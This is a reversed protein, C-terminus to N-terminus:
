WRIDHESGHFVKIISSDTFVENLDNLSERLSITDVIYDKERTSIQMLCTFGQYSRFAHHELDVAIDKQSKLDEILENLLKNTDVLTYTTREEIAPM